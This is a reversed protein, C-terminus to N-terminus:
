DARARQMSSGLAAAVRVQDDDRLEHYLPLILTSDTVSDTARLNFRSSAYPAERHAAMVGPRTTVGAIMLEDIVRDRLARDAEVLSVVYSQFNPQRDAPVYPTRLGPIANLLQDYRAAQSRRRSLFQEMRGLQVIGLAAQVDTMRYNYGLEAYVERLYRDKAQHRDLDSVTMGHHRLRRLRAALEHSATTIMGGEGCTLVKRPHFSFAAAVGWPRGIREARYSSGIACAADEILALGHRASIAALEQLDAPLGVQHVALVAKTRPTIASQVAEPSINFTREDIDVFVPTAGAHRISNCTAIFSLSPCIVEDGPGIDLAVFISHLATTCSTVAVAHEAGVYEAFKKEFEAVRPGQTLWGSRLVAVVAAEEEAGIYPKAVPITSSTM